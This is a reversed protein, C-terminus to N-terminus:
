KKHNSKLTPLEETGMLYYKNRWQKYKFVYGDQIQVYTRLFFLFPYKWKKIIVRELDFKKFVYNHYFPNEAIREMMGEGKRTV